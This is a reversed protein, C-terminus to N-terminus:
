WANKDDAWSLWARKMERLNGRDKAAVPNQNTILRLATFWHDPKGGESRLQRLILPLARDGMGIIKMYSECTTIDSLSSSAKRERYWADLLSAFKLEDPVISLARGSHVREMTDLTLFVKPSASVGCLEGRSMLDGVSRVPKSSITASGTTPFVAFASIATGILLPRVVSASNM